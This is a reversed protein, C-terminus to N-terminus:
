LRRPGVKAPHKLGRLMKRRSVTHEPHDLPLQPGALSRWLARESECAMGAKGRGPGARGKPLGVTEKQAKILEGLRREARM